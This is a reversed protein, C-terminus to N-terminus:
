CKASLSICATQGGSLMWQAHQWFHTALCCESDDLFTEGPTDDKKAPAANSITAGDSAGNAKETDKTTASKDDSQEEFGLSKQVSHVLGGIIGTGTQGVKDYWASAKYKKLIMGNHSRWYTVYLRQTECKTVSGSEFRTM